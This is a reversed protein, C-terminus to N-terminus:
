AIQYYFLMYAPLAAVQPASMPAISSDDCLWWGDLSTRVVASCHGCMSNGVHVCVAYLRYTRPGIRLGDLPFTVLANNKRGYADFRKLDVVLVSGVHQFATRRLADVRIGKAEHEIQNDGVLEEDAVFRALCAELSADEDMALSLTTFLQTPTSLVADTSKERIQTALIGHFVRRVHTLQRGYEGGGKEEAQNTSPASEHLADVVFLFLEAADGQAGQRFNHLPSAFLTRLFNAPNILADKSNSRLAVTLATWEKGLDSTYQVDLQLPPTHALIQLIANVFCTNGSNLLGVPTLASSSM